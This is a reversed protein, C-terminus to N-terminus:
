WILYNLQSSANLMLDVYNQSINQWNRMLVFKCQIHIECMSSNELKKM